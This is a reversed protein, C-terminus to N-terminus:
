AWEPPRRLSRGNGMPISDPFQFALINKTPLIGATIGLHRFSDNRRMGQDQEDEPVYVTIEITPYRARIWKLAPELDSDGSVLVIRDMAGDIADSMMRVAIGVDTKKEEPVEYEERCSAKCKVGRKQYKGYIVQVRESTKLAKIYLLQRAKRSTAEDPDVIATFYNINTVRDNPRIRDMFSPIDFWRLSPRGKLVGFYLNFGDVYVITRQPQPNVVPM